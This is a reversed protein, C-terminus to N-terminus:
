CYLVVAARWWPFRWYGGPSMPSTHMSLSVKYWGPLDHGEPLGRRTLPVGIAGSYRDYCPFDRHTNTLGDVDYCISNHFTAAQGSCSTPMERQYWGTVPKIDTMLSWVFGTDLDSCVAIDIMQQM